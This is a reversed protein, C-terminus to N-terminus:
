EEMKWRITVKKIGWERAKNVDTGMYIDIKKEWRYHMKDLVLYEGPLGEIQVKSGHTLGLEILDQSVAISKVSPDLTDGWAGVAPNSGGSQSAISNYATAEVELSKTQRDECKSSLFFFALVILAYSFFKMAAPNVINLGLTEQVKKFPKYKVQQQYM